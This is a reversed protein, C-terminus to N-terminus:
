QTEIKKASAIDSTLQRLKHLMWLGILLRMIPQYIISFLEISQGVTESMWFENGFAILNGVGWVLLLYALIRDLRSNNLLSIGYFINGLAFAVIFLGFLAYGILGAHDINIQIMQQVAIDDTELYSRRLNNMYFLVFMQRFIETFSFVAFFVFGLVTFGPSKKYQIFLFGLMSILVFLCHAIIWFRTMMYTSNEFLRIREEASLDGLDFLSSHIGVTTIVSLLCCIIALWLFSRYQTNITM